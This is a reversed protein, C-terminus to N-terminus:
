KYKLGLNTITEVVIVMKQNVTEIRGRIAVLTSDPFIFIEGTPEKNWNVLPVIDLEKEIGSYDYCREVQLYRIRADLKDKNKLAGIISVSNLM